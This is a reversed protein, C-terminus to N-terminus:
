KVLDKVAPGVDLKIDNKGKKIEVELPTAELTTYKAEVLTYLPLVEGMMREEWAVYAPSGEPPPPGLKSEGAQKKEVIVKFHGLPVGAYRANTYITAVGNQDTSGTPIWNSVNQPDASPPSNTGDRVMSIFANPLPKGEQTLTIVCPHLPPLDSPRNSPQCGFCVLLVMGFTTRKWNWHKTM